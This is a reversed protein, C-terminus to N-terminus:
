CKRKNLFHFLELKFYYYKAQLSYQGIHLWLSSKLGIWFEERKTVGENLHFHLDRLLSTVFTKHLYEMAMWKSYLFNKFKLFKGEAVLLIFWILFTKNRLMEIISGINLSISFQWRKRRLSEPKQGSFNKVINKCNVKLLKKYAISNLFADTM